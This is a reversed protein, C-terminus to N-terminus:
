RQAPVIVGCAVRDGSSAMVRYDDGKAHIMMASGDADGLTHAFAASPKPDLTVDPVFFSAAATGDAAVDVNPLDGVHYGGASHFGHEAGAPNFHGGAAKFDPSCAGTEHIHFGHPGPALNKLRASVILGHETQAFTITGADKGDGTTMAVAVAAGAPAEDAWVPAAVLTLTGLAALACFSLPAFSKVALTEKTIVVYAWQHWTAATGTKENGLRFPGNREQKKGPRTRLTLHDAL